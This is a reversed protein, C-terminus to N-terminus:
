PESNQSELLDYPCQQMGAFSVNKKVRIERIERIGRQNAQRRFFYIKSILFNVKRGKNVGYTQSITSPRSQALCRNKLNHRGARLAEFETKKKRVEKRRQAKARSM